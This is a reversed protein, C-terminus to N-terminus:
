SIYHAEFTKKFSPRRRIMKIVKQKTFGKSRLSSFGNMLLIILGNIGDRTFVTDNSIKTDVGCKKFLKKVLLQHDRSRITFHSICLGTDDLIISGDGSWWGNLFKIASNTNSKAMGIAIDLLNEIISRLIICCTFVRIVPFGDKTRNKVIWDRFLEPNLHLENIAREKWLKKKNIKSNFFWKLNERAFLVDLFKLWVKVLNFDSNSFAIHSLSGEANKSTHGEAIFLGLASLFISKKWRIRTPLIKWRLKGFKGERTKVLICVKKRPVNFSIHKNELSISELNISPDWNSHLRIWVHNDNIKLLENKVSFGNGKIFIKDM